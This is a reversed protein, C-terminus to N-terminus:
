VNDVLLKGLRKIGERINDHSANSFNLRMTNQGGGHPYFPEGYVYAVKQEVAKPLLEKASITKPLMVWLFLGGNPITWSVQEPFHKKMEGVMLDRKGRYDAKIKEIHADLQGSVIYEYAVYQLFANTHLDACQKVKEFQPIIKSPGNMWGLRFGPALIKSFSRCAIVEDGGISKLTPIREGEFQLDGYPNDDIIPIDYQTGLRILAERRKVSM